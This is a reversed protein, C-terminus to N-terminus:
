IEIRHFKESMQQRDAQEQQSLRSRYGGAVSGAIRVNRANMRDAVAFQANVTAAGVDQLNESRGIRGGGQKRQAQAVSQLYGRLALGARGYPIVPKPVTVPDRAPMGIEDRVATRYEHPKEPLLPRDAVPEPDLQLFAVTRELLAQAARLVSKGDRPGVRPADKADIQPGANWEVTRVSTRRAIAVPEHSGSRDTQLPGLLVSALQRQGGRRALARQVHDGGAGPFFEVPLRGPDGGNGPKGQQLRCGPGCAPRIDRYRSQRAFPPALKQLGDVVRGCQDAALLRGFAGYQGADDIMHAVDAVLVANRPRQERQALPLARPHYEVEVPPHPLAAAQDMVSLRDAVGANEVSVLIVLRLNRAIQDHLREVVIALRAIRSEQAFDHRHELPRGLGLLPIQDVTHQREVAVFGIDGPAHNGTLHHIV